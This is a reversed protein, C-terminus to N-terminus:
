GVITLTGGGGVTRGLEDLGHHLVICRACRCPPWGHIFCGGAGDDVFLVVGRRRAVECASTVSGLNIAPGEVSSLRLVRGRQPAGGPPVFNHDYPNWQGTRLEQQKAWGIVHDPTVHTHLLIGHGSVTGRLEGNRFAYTLRLNDIM